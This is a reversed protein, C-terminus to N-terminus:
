VGHIFFDFFGNVRRHHLLVQADLCLMGVHQQEVAHPIEVLQEMFIGRAGGLQEVDRQRLAACGVALRDPHGTHWVVGGLL